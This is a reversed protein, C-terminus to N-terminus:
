RAWDKIGDAIANALFQQRAHNFIAEEGEPSTIFDVEILCSPIEPNRTVAFNAHLSGKSPIEGDLADSMRVAVAEALKEGLPNWSYVATYRATRPDKNAAPANHHISVFADANESHALRPRETLVLTRDNERTMLVRFGRASLADRVAKALILNANKEYLGHPSLAGTDTGGHGPDIVITIEDPTHGTPHERPTDSAYELKEWKKEPLPPADLALPAPKKAVNFVHNTTYTVTGDGSPTIRTYTCEVVNTGEVVDVMTAWAGTRYIEVEQGQITLSTTGREVAGIM